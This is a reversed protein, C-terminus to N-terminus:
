SVDISKLNHLSAGAVTLQGGTPERRRNTPSTVQLQGSLYRGTLSNPDGAVAEPSGQSVVEGGLIGAGPGIDILWDASRMTDADHEVVLGTNGMDRLMLLTDLLTRQDRAHLGISPEDLVYLVGVLGCGLQSALRIRQGEGGSLTPAARELTLYHLGVNLMFRLRDRVEKLAEGAIELQEESLAAYLGYAWDLAADLPM